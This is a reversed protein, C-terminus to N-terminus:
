AVEFRGNNLAGEHDNAAASLPRGLFAIQADSWPGVEPGNDFQGVFSSSLCRLFLKVPADGLRGRRIWGSISIDASGEGRGGLAVAVATAFFCAM